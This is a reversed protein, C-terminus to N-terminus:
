KKGLRHLPLAARLLEADQLMAARKNIWLTPDLFAGASDAREIDALLEPVDHAALVQAALACASVAAQYRAIRETAGRLQAERAIQAYDPDPM